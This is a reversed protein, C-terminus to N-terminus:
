RARFYAVLGLLLAGIITIVIIPLWGPIDDMAMQVEDVAKSANADATVTANAAVESLILFGIVLTIGISVLAIVVPLLEQIAGKKQKKFLSKMNRKRGRIPPSAGNMNKLLIM